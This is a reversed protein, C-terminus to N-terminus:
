AAARHALADLLKGHVGGFGGNSMVLVHDGARAQAAVDAVLAGLDAHVHAREGLPALAEAADWGLNAAYCFVHDAQALSGPLAAKMTGLKMTNSRPEVVALIRGNRERRRLGEITTAIATPHHAFDDYVRIDRVSGRLEMRRRVGQFTALAAVAEEASVGVARAAVIAALANLQNHRGTQGFALTGQVADRHRVRSAEDITWDASGPTDAHAFREIASWAGRSLVRALADDAGNAVITGNAPITRVFHHFQTEIAALDAFIDAH